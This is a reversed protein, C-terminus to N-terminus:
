GEGSWLLKLRSEELLKGFRKKLFSIKETVSWSGHSPEPDVIKRVLIWDYFATLDETGVESFALANRGSIWPELDTTQNLILIDDVFVKITSASLWQAEMKYWVNLRAPFSPNALEYGTGDVVKYFELQDTHEEFRANYFNNADQRGIFIGPYAYGPSGQVYFKARTAALTTPSGASIYCRHDVGSDGLELRSEATNWNWVGQFLTWDSSEDTSFDYFKIFTDKGNSASITGNNGFYLYIEQDSNLDEEVKVWVLAYTGAQYEEIWYSLSNGNKDTFRLDGFDVRCLGDLGVHASFALGMRNQAWEPHTAGGFYMWLINDVEILYPTLVGEDDWEGVTKELVPNGSYATWSIGDDSTFIDIKAVRDIGQTGTWHVLAMVYKGGWKVVMVDSFDDGTPPSLIPNGPYRTWNIGDSSTAYGIKVSGDPDRGDYWMKWTSGEKMVSPRATMDEWTGPVRPLIPNDPHKVFPGEPNTSTALGIQDYTGDQGTFYLYFTGGVKIVDPDNVHNDDWSGESGINLIPNGTYKTWNVGDSSFAYGLRDHGDAAMAGYWMRFTSGDIMVSPSYLNNGDWTETPSILPFFKSHKEFYHFLKDYAIKTRVQYNTGAGAAGKIIHKKRYTWDKLPWEKSDFELFTIAETLDFSLSKESSPELSLFEDLNVTSSM